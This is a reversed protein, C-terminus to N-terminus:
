MKAKKKREDAAAERKVEADRYERYMQILESRSLAAEPMKLEPYHLMVLAYGNLLERLFRFQSLPLSKTNIDSEQLVTSCWVLDIEQVDQRERLKWVKLELARSADTMSRDGSVVKIAPDCDCYLTTPANVTIGMEKHMNRIGVLSQSANFAEVLEAMTTSTDVLTHKKANAAICAGNMKANNGGMSTPPNLSSDTFGYPTNIGHWDLGYSFCVGLDHSYVMYGMCDLLGEIAPRSWKSMFRSLISVAGRCEIKTHCAPFAVTGMVERYPFNSVSEHEEDTPKHSLRRFCSVRQQRRPLLGCRRGIVLCM